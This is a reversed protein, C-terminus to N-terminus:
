ALLPGRWEGDQTTRADVTSRRSRDAVSSRAATQENLTEIKGVGKIRESRRRALAALRIRAQDASVEDLTQTEDPSLGKLDQAHLSTPVSESCSPCDGVAYRGAAETGTVEVELRRVCDPLEFSALHAMLADFTPDGYTAFGLTGDLDPIGGDYAQRSITLAQGNSIGPVNNLLICRWAPDAHLM